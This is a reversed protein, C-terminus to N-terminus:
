CCCVIAFESHERCDREFERITDMCDEIYSNGGKSVYKDYSHHVHEFDVSTLTFGNLLKNYIDIIETRLRDVENEKNERRIDQLQEKMEASQLKLVGIDEQQQANSTALKELTSGMAELLKQNQRRISNTEEEKAKQEKERKQDYYKVIGWVSGILTSVAGLLAIVIEM